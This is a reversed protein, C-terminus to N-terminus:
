KAPIMGGSFIVSEFTKNLSKSTYNTMKPGPQLKVQQGITVKTDPVAAWVKKGDQELLLYTYGGSNMTEVVKGAVEASENGPQAMMAGMHGKKANEKKSTAPTGEKNDTSPHGPPLSNAAGAPKADSEVGQSFIISDFTRNLTKSNFNNMQMGPQVAVEQGVKLATVPVAVWMSKGDKELKVYTYGGSDMTEVVKGSIADSDAARAAPAETITTKHKKAAGEDGIPGDTFVIRDFTRNLAKSNFSTMVMGPKLALEEGVKATISASTAIWTQKGDKELNVYTYAGAKITEVVKGSLTVVEIPGPAAADKKAAEPKVTPQVVTATGACGQLTMVLGLAFGTSLLNRTGKM